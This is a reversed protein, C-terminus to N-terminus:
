KIYKLIIKEIKITQEPYRYQAMWKIIKKLDNHIKKSGYVKINYKVVNTNLSSTIKSKNIYYIILNEPLCSFPHNSERVIDDLFSVKKYTKPIKDNNNNSKNSVENKSIKDNNKSSKNSVKLDKENKYIKKTDKIVNKDDKGNKLMFKYYNNYINTM